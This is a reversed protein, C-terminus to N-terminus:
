YIKIWREARESMISSDNAPILDWVSGDDFLFTHAIAQFAKVNSYGDRCSDNIVFSSVSIIKLKNDPRAYIDTM